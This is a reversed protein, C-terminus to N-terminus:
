SIQSPARPPLSARFSFQWSCALAPPAAGPPDPGNSFTLRDELATGLEISYDPSRSAASLDTLQPVPVDTSAVHCIGDAADHDNDTDSPGDEQHAAHIWGAQELLSHSTAPGWLVLLFVTVVIKLWRVASLM